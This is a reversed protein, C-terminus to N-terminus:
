IDKMLELIRTDDHQPFLYKTIILVLATMEGFVSIFFASFQIDSIIIRQLGILFFSIILSFLQTGLFIIFCVAYLKRLKREASQQITWSNLMSHLKYSKDTAEQMKILDNMNRTNTTDVSTIIKQTEDSFLKIPNYENM